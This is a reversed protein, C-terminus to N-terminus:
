EEDVVIEIAVLDGDEQRVGAIAVRDGEAVPRFATEEPMQIMFAYVNTDDAQDCAAITLALILILVGAWVTRKVSM